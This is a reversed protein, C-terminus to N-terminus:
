QNTRTRTPKWAPYRVDRDGQTIQSFEGTTLDYLYVDFKGPQNRIGPNARDSTFAIWHGDSSWAPSDDNAQSTFLKRAAQGERNMIYIQSRGTNEDTHRFLIDKGDPSWAPHYEDGPLDTLQLTDGSGDASMVYIDFNDGRDSSFVIEKGDPSWAPNGNNAPSDPTLNRLESGDTNVVWIDWDGEDRKSEFAIKGGGPSWAPHMDAGPHVTLQIPTGSGDAQMLYIDYNGPNNSAFVIRSGDPSWDPMTEDSEDIKL